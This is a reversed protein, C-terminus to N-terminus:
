YEHQSLCTIYVVARAGGPHMLRAITVLFHIFLIALDRM